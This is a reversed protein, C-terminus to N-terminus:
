LCCTTSTYERHLIPYINNFIIDKKNIYPYKKKSMIDMEGDSPIRKRVVTRIICSSQILLEPKNCYEIM